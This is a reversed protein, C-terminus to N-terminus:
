NGYTKHNNTISFKYVAIMFRSVRLFSQLPDVKLRNTSLKLEQLLPVPQGVQDRSVVTSFNFIMKVLIIPM